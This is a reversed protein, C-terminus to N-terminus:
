FRLHGLFIPLVGAPAPRPVQHSHRAVKRRVRAWLRCKLSPWCRSCMWAARICPRNSPWAPGGSVAAIVQNCGCRCPKAPRSQSSSPSNGSCFPCRKVTAGARGCGPHLHLVGPCGAVVVAVAVLINGFRVM